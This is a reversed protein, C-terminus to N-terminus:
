DSLVSPLFAPWCRWGFGAPLSRCMLGPVCLLRLPRTTARACVHVVAGGAISGLATPSTFAATNGTVGCALTLLYGSALCFPALLFFHRRGNGTPWGGRWPHLHRQAPRPAHFQLPPLLAILFLLLVLVLQPNRLRTSTRVSRVFRPRDATLWNGLIIGLGLENGSFACLMRADVGVADDGGHRRARRGRALGASEV